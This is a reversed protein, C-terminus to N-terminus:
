HRSRRIRDEFCKTPQPQIPVLARVDFCNMARIHLRLPDLDVVLMSLPEDSLAFRVPTIARGFAKVLHASGLLRAATPRAVISSTPVGLARTISSRAIRENDAELHGEFTRDRYVVFDSSVNGELCSQEIIEYQQFRIPERRVMERIDHIIMEHLDAM